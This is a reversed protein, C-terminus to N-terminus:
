FRTLSVPPTGPATTWGTWGVGPKLYNEYISGDTGLVYTVNVGNRDKTSNPVGVFSVGNPLPTNYTHWGSWPGNGPQTRYSEQLNGSRDLATIVTKGASDVFVSPSSVLSGNTGPAATWGNWGVGPTLRNEYINGDTGTAYTTNVGNADKGAFPTGVFSVGNPLPTNYTHWGSWPGNGPQTRYSEQLNGSRDLATIVTKGASDVFVSPSGALSGNTGPAATWGTWGTGPKLYNEYVNGDTGLVYTANVGNVDKTAFPTGVFRVGNPQPTSYRHWGSWPGNGPLTQYNEELDGAGDIATLVTRGTADVFASPASVFGNAITTPSYVQGDGLSAWGSWNGAGPSRQYSEHIRADTGLAYVALAGNHDVVTAQAGALMGHPGNPVGTRGAYGAAVINAQVADEAADSPYGATMVGEFFTGEAWNSNDGGIGLIIGGEQKMPRYTGRSPLPGNWWTSLAGSRADGGKLAYTSQGDNKLMATVFQSSNGLNAPNVGDDGSFLGDELDAQVWPGSGTCSGFFCRTSLTLADMHANGTDAPVTEANGYDFCCDANVHKGSAVMYAGEPAGNVAVGVARGASRYGVGQTIWVGYVKHGGATVALANADAPRDAGTGWASHTGWPVGAPGPTLDNHNPTQDYIRTIACETGACFADHDAADAYGDPLPSVDHVAGDSVRTLRYLPGSYGTFLARVTSHAAVCATGHSGYIDCPGKGSAGAATPLSVLSAVLVSLVGLLARLPNWRGPRSRTTSM